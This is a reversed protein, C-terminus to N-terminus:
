ENKLSRWATDYMQDLFEIIIPILLAYGVVLFLTSIYWNVDYTLISIVQFIISLVCFERPFRLILKNM